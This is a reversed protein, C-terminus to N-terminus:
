RTSSAPEIAKRMFVSVEGKAMDDNGYFSLDVALPAYGVKRYFGIAPVNTNQAECSVARYGRAAAAREVASLLERGAGRGRYGEEVHLEWVIAIRNWGSSGVIALGRMVGGDMATFSLGLGLLTRYWGFQAANFPWTKVFPPDRRRHQFRLAFGDDREDLAVDFVAPSTYGTVLRRFDAENIEALPVIDM